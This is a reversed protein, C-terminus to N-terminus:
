LSSQGVQMLEAAAQVVPLPQAAALAPLKGMAALLVGEMGVTSPPMRSAATVLRLLRGANQM